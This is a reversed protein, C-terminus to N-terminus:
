KKISVLLVAEVVKNGNFATTSKFEMLDHALLQEMIDLALQNKVQNETYNPDIIAYRQIETEQIQAKVMITEYPTYIIEKVPEEIPQPKPKIGFLGKLWEIDKKNILWNM